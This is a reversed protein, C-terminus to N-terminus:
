AWVCVKSLSRGSRLYKRTEGLGLDVDLTSGLDLYTNHPHAAHLEAIVINSLVGACVLLLRDVAGQASFVAEVEDLVRDCDQIWANGGTKVHAAVPFPLGAPDAAQHGILLPPTPWDAIAALTDSRFTAYNANVFVNAWTLQSEAQGSGAQLTRFQALGVCCPCAIGVFYDPHQYRMSARLRERQREGDAEGPQYRHEGHLKASLDIATGNIIHMEGDGFRTLAFHTRSRLRANFTHLAADFRKDGDYAPLNRRALYRRLARFSM